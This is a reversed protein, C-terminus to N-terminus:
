SAAGHEPKLDVLPTGDLCDLGRVQLNGGDIAVLEVVSSAVPNPRVPSRLAFTGTTAKGFPTQLVLDRRAQHMWYLVQLRKHGALGTLGDRWREDIVITCVPGDISGRKPCERRTKWPTRITGIFYVGVDTEAPLEVAMEGTRLNSDSM